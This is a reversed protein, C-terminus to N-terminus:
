PAGGGAPKAPATAPTSAPAPATAPQTSPAPPTDAAVRLFFREPGGHGFHCDLCSQKPTSHQPITSLMGRVHCQECVAPAPENLLAPVTSEHPQHCLLCQGVAVPGHMVKFTTSTEKHCKACITHPVKAFSEFSAGQGAGPHCQACDNTAFPKHVYVTAGTRTNTVVTAGEGGPQTTPKADPDPVGDFFYTLVKYRKQPTCGSWAPILCLAVLAALAISWGWRGRRWPALAPHTSRPM